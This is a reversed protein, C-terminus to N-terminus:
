SVEGGTEAQAMIDGALVIKNKGQRKAAYMAEDAAKLLADVTGGDGPYIAVGVSASVQCVRGNFTIPEAVWQILRDAIELIEPLTGAHPLLIVFEDGGRRSVTDTARVAAEMRAATVTLVHDGADHGDRDNIQKFDDLDLYILACAEQNREADRLAQALRDDLLSRNPLGTLADFLALGRVQEYLSQLDRNASALRHRHVAIVILLVTIGLVAAILIKESLRQRQQRASIREMVDRESFGVSIALPYKELKRYVYTRAVGDFPSVGDFQGEPARALAEWLPSVGIAGWQTDAPLPYRARLKRDETGLLSTTSQPGVRLDQYFRAISYPDVSALVLGAFSGDPHRLPRSMRFLHKGSVRGFQVPSFHIRDDGAGKQTLFYERDSLDVNNLEKSGTWLLLKGEASVIALDDIVSRDFPVRDLHDQADELSERRAYAARLALLHADVYNVLDLTHIEFAERTLRAEKTALVREDRLTLDDLYHGSRLIGWCVCAAAACIAVITALM